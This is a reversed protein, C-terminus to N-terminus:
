KGEITICQPMLDRLMYLKALDSDNFHLFLDSIEDKKEQLYQICSNKYETYSIECEALMELFTKLEKQYGQTFLEMQSVIMKGESGPVIDVEKKIDTPTIKLTLNIEPLKYKM